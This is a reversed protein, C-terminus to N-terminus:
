NGGSARLMRTLRNFFGPKEDLDLFPVQEGRMRRAINQYAQGARSKSDLAIPQGRNTSM